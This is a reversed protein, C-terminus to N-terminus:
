YMSTCADTRARSARCMACACVCRWRMRRAASLMGSKEAHTNCARLVLPPWWFTAMGYAGCARRHPLLLGARHEVVGLGQACRLACAFHDTLAPLPTPRPGARTHCALPISSYRRPVSPADPPTHLPPELSLGRVKAAPHFIMCYLVICYM